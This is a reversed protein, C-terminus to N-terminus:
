EQIGRREVDFLWAFQEPATTCYTFQEGCCMEFEEKEGM